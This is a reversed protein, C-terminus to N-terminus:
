FLEDNWMSKAGIPTMTKEKLTEKSVSYMAEAIAISSNEVAMVGSYFESIESLAPYEGAIVPTGCVLSELVSLGFSESKSVSVSADAAAFYYQAQATSCKRIQM